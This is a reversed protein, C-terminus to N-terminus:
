SLSYAMARFGWLLPHIPPISLVMPVAGGSQVVGQMMRFVPLIVPMSLVPFFGRRKAQVIKLNEPDYCRAVHRARLALRCYINLCRQIGLNRCCKRPGCFCNWSWGPGWLELVAQRMLGKAAVFIDAPSNIYVSSM